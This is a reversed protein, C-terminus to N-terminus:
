DFAGLDVEAGENMVVFPRATVTVRGLADRDIVDVVGAVHGM